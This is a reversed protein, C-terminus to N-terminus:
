QRFLAHNKLGIGGVGPRDSPPVEPGVKPQGVVGVVQAPQSEDVGVQGRAATITQDISQESPTVDAPDHTADLIVMVSTSIMYAHLDKVHIRM